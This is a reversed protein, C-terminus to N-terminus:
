RSGGGHLRVPLTTLARLLYSESYTVEERPIALEMGPFRNLVAPIAIEAELRALAAGICNHLGHGLGLHRPGKRTIDLRDPDEFRRPDRNASLLAAIVPAGAPLAVGGFEMDEKAFRFLGMTLAGERRLFEEIAQPALEPREALLRGQEPNDLVALVASAILNRTTDLGAMIMQALLAVLEDETLRDNGDRAEILSTLLDDGPSSQKEVILERGYQAIDAFARTAKAPDDDSHFARDIADIIDNYRDLPIGFVKGLVEAPIAAAYDIVDPNEQEALLDLNTRVILETAERWQAVRRPTFAGMALKRQRTHDPPDLTSLIRAVVTGAGMVMGSKQFEPNAYAEANTSFRPDGLLAHVDDFRTVIWTRFDGIPFTFEHIPSNDRLWAFSPYPDQYYDHGFLATPPSAVM